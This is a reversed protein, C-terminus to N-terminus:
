FGLVEVEIYLYLHGTHLDVLTPQPDEKTIKRKMQMRMNLCRELIVIKMPRILLILYDGRMPMM